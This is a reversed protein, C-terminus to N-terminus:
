GEGEPYRYCLKDAERAAFEEPHEKEVQLAATNRYYECCSLLCFVGVSPMFVLVVAHRSSPVPLRRRVERFSEGEM